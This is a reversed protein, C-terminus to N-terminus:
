SIMLGAVVSLPIFLQSFSCNIHYNLRSAPVLGMVEHGNYYIKFKKGEYRMSWTYIDVCAM